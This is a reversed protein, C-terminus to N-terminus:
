KRKVTTKKKTTKPLYKERNKVTSKIFSYKNNHYVVIPSTFDTALFLAWNNVNFNIASYWVKEIEEMDINNLTVKGIVFRHTEYPSDSVLYALVM